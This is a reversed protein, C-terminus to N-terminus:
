ARQHRPDMEGAVIWRGASSFSRARSRASADINVLFINAPKLDRHVIGKAHTAGLASGVQKVISAVAAIPMRGVRRLRQDLDEGELFEMALYPEGTPATAFDLV